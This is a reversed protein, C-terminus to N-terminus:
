GDASVARRDALEAGARISLLMTMRESPEDSGSIRRWALAGLAQLSSGVEVAETYERCREDYRRDFDLLSAPSLGSRQLDILLRGALARRVAAAQDRSRDSIALDRLFWVFITCELLCEDTGARVPHTWAFGEEALRGQLLNTSRIISEALAAAVRPAPTKARGSRRILDSWAL